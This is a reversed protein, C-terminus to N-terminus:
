QESVYACLVDYLAIQKTKSDMKEGAHLSEVSESQEFFMEGLTTKQTDSVDFLSQMRNLKEIFDFNSQEYEGVKVCYLDLVAM